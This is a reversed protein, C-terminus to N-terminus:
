SSGRQLGTIAYFGKGRGQRKLRNELKRADTLLLEESQWVITWPGHGKTWRSQGTNHQAVRRAVDDSLGIYFKGAHNQLIYVRYAAPM